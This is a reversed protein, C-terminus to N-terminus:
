RWSDFWMWHNFAQDSPLAAASLIPYFYAFLGLAICGFWFMASDREGHARLHFAAPLAVCLWIGSLYYYYYFGLSKPIVAWIALSAIWLLAIAGARADRTTWWRWALWGVAILGGWMIAPNGVYLIGRVAGDVPEYLYWIPRLELPWTMWGSQYPHPSLVQTQRAYMEFQFPILGGPTMADQAYFFAPLFTVAYAAVSIVGLLIVGKAAALGPWLDHRRARIAVFALSAFAIYPAATWKVATALGLLVAGLVWRRTVRDPPSRMAWLLAAVGGVVFAALFPELMAIRAHIYLTNGLVAFAAGYSATRVSGFLLMLIAFIGTVTATGALTSAARWGIPNDGFVAMGAAILEKGLLPHEINAPRELTLLTRAAPVYHVEDFVPKSPRALNISFLLQAALAILLAAFAPHSLRAPM